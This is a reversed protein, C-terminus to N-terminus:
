ARETLNEARFDNANCNVHAVDGPQIDNFMFFCVRALKYGRGQWRVQLYGNVTSSSVPLNSDKWSVEGSVPNYNISDVLSQPIEPSM